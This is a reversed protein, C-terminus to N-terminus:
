IINDSQPFFFLLILDSLRLVHISINRSHSSKIQPPELVTKFRIFSLHIAENNFFYYTQISSGLNGTINFMKLPKLYCNVKKKLLNGSEEM